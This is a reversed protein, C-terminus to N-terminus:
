LLSLMKKGFESKVLNVNWILISILNLCKKFVFKVFSVFLNWFGLSIRKV